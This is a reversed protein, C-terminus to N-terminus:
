NAANARVWKLINQVSQNEVEAPLDVRIRKSMDVAISGEQGQRSLVLFRNNRVNSGLNTNIAQPEEFFPNISFADSEYDYSPIALQTKGEPFPFAFLSSYEGEGEQFEAIPLVPKVTMDDKNISFAFVGNDQSFGVLFDEWVELRLIHGSQADESFREQLFKPQIAKSLKLNSVDYCYAKSASRIGVLTSGNNYNIQALYYPFDPSENIELVKRDVRECNATNYVELIRHSDGYDADFTSSDAVIVVLRQAQRLFLQNDDLMKGAPTCNHSSPVPAVNEAVASSDQTQGNSTEQSPTEGGCAMILLALGWFCLFSFQKKM